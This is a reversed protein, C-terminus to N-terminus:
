PLWCSPFDRWTNETFQELITGGKDMIYLDFDGDRDSAFLIKSSDPSWIPMFDDVGPSNTLNTEVGQMTILLDFSEDDNFKETLEASSDPAPIAISSYPQAFDDSVSTITHTNIDVTKWGTAGPSADWYLLTTDSIWISMGKYLTGSETIQEFDEGNSSMLYIEENGTRDSVFAIQEGDPSCSPLYDTSPDNTLNQVVGTNYDASFIDYSGEKDAYYIIVESAPTETSTQTSQITATSNPAVATAVSQTAQVPAQTPPQATLTQAIITQRVSTSSPANCALILGVLVLLILLLRFRLTKDRM